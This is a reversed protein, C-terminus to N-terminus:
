RGHRGHPHHGVPHRPRVPKRHHGAHHLRDPYGCLGNVYRIPGCDPGYGSGTDGYNYDYDDYDGSGGIHGGGFRGHPGAFGRGAFGHRGVGGGGAHGAGQADAVPPLGAGAALALAAVIVGSRVARKM